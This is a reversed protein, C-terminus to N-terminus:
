TPKKRDKARRSRAPGKGLRETLLHIVEGEGFEHALMRRVWGAHSYYVGHRLREMDMQPPEKGETVEDQAWRVMEREDHQANKLRKRILDQLQDVAVIKFHGLDALLAAYPEDASKSEPPLAADLTKELLDVNLPETSGGIDVTERYADRDSLIRDFELDIAELM